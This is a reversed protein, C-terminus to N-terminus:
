KFLAEIAGHLRPFAVDTSYVSVAMERAKAGMRLREQKNEILFSLRDFWEQESAALFGNEGDELLSTNIGVPAAVSPIGLAMYQLLKYGGKARAWEDDPLPMIGIDFKELESIETHLDWKVFRCDLYPIDKLASGIFTFCVNTYKAGLRKLVPILPELYLTNQPSGIWGVVLQVKNIEKSRPRYREIDVPGTIHLMNSNHLEVLKKTQDTVLIVLNSCRIMHIFNYFLRERSKEGPHKAASQHITYVADDFDFVIKKGFFNLTSMFFRPLIIKQIFVVPYFFSLILFLFIKFIHHLMLVFSNKGLLASPTYVVVKCAISERALYPLYQFVRIRSSAITQDSVTFFLIKM